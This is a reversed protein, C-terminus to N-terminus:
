FDLIEAIKLIGGFYFQLLELNNVYTKPNLGEEIEVIAINASYDIIRGKFPPNRIILDIEALSLHWNSGLVLLFRKM